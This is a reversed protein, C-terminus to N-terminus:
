HDHKQYMEDMCKKFTYIFNGGYPSEIGDYKQFKPDFAGFNRCERARDEYCGNDAMISWFSFGVNPRIGDDREQDMLQDMAECLLKARSEQSKPTYYQDVAPGKSPDLYGLAYRDGINVQSFDTPYPDASGDHEFASYAEVCKDTTREWTTKYYRCADNGNNVNADPVPHGNGGEICSMNYLVTNRFSNAMAWPTDTTRTFDTGAADDCVMSLRITNFMVNFAYTGNTVKTSAPLVAPLAGVDDTYVWLANPIVVTPYEPYTAQSWQMELTGSNACTATNTLDSCNYWIQTRKPILKDTTTTSCMAATIGTCDWRGWYMGEAGAQSYKRDITRDTGGPNEGNGGLWSDIEASAWVSESFCAIDGYAHARDFMTRVGVTSVEDTNEIDRYANSISNDSVQGPYACSSVLKLYQESQDPSFIGRFWGEHLKYGLGFSLLANRYRGERSFLEDHLPKLYKRQYTALMDTFDEYVAAEAETLQDNGFSVGTCSFTNSTGTLFSRWRNSGDANQTTCTATWATALRTIAAEDKDPTGDADSDTADYGPVDSWGTLTGVVSTEYAGGYGINNIFTSETAPDGYKARMFNIIGIKSYNQMTANGSVPIRVGILNTQLLRYILHSWSITGRLENGLKFGVNNINSRIRNALFYYPNPDAEHRIIKEGGLIPYHGTFGWSSLVDNVRRLITATYKPSYVDLWTNNFEPITPFVIYGADQSNTNWFKMDVPLIFTYPDDPDDTMAERAVFFGANNLGLVPMVADNLYFNALTCSMSSALGMKIKFWNCVNRGELLSRQAGSGLDQNNAGRIFYMHDLPNILVMRNIDDHREVRWAGYLTFQRFEDGYSSLGVPTNSGSERGYQSIMVNDVYFECAGGDCTIEVRGSGCSGVHATSFAASVWSQWHGVGGSTGILQNVKLTTNDGDYIKLRVAGSIINIHGVSQWNFSWNALSATCGTNLRDIRLGTQSIGDGSDGAVHRESVGDMVRHDRSSSSFWTTTQYHINTGTQTLENTSPTGVASWSADVEMSGNTVVNNWLRDSFEAFITDRNNSGVNFMAETNADPRLRTGVLDYGDDALTPFGTRGDTRVPNAKYLVYNDIYDHYTQFYQPEKSLVHIYGGKYDQDAPYVQEPEIIEPLAPTAVPADLLTLDQISGSFEAVNAINLTSFAYLYRLNATSNLRHNVQEPTGSREPNDWMKLAVIDEYREVTFYRTFNGSPPGNMKRLTALGPAFIGIAGTTCFYEVYFGSTSNNLAVVSNSAGFLGVRCDAASGSDNFTFSFSYSFAGLQGAGFDKYIYANVNRTRANVFNIQSATNTMQSATSFNDTITWGSTFDQLQAYSPSSILLFIAIFLAKSFRM